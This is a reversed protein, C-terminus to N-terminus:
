TNKSTHDIQIKEKVFYERCMICFVIRNMVLKYMRVKTTRVSNHRVFLTHTTLSLSQKLDKHFQRVKKSTAKKLANKAIIKPTIDQAVTKMNRPLYLRECSKCKEQNTNNKLIESRSRNQLDHDRIPKESVRLRFWRLFFRRKQYIKTIFKKRLQHFWDRM